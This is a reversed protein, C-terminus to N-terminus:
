TNNHIYVSPLLGPSMVQSKTGKEMSKCVQSFHSGRGLGRGAKCTIPLQTPGPFLSLLTCDFQLLNQIRTESQSCLQHEELLLQLLKTILQSSSLLGLRLILGLQSRPILGLQSSPILGPLQSYSRPDPFSVQSRPILGPIQSYSWGTWHKM